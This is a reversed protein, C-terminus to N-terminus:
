DSVSDMSRRWSHSSAMAWASSRSASFPSCLADPDHGRHPVVALGRHARTQDEQGQGVMAVVLAHAPRGLGLQGALAAHGLAGDLTRQSLDLVEALDGASETIAM